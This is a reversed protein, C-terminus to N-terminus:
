WHRARYGTLLPCFSLVHVVVKSAILSASPASKLASEQFKGTLMLLFPLLPAMLTFQRNRGEEVNCGRFPPHKRKHLTKLVALYQPRYRVDCIGFAM